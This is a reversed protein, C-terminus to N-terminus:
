NSDAVVRETSSSPDEMKFAKFIDRRHLGLEKLVEDLNIAIAELLADIEEFKHNRTVTMRLGTNNYPVSPFVAINTYFGQQLMRKCLAYGTEPQGMGIFFIPTECRKILPLSLENAKQTFYAINAELQAQMEYIEESLHIEASAIGAGLNAPQLPGSFMLTGGCNRVLEKADENPFVMAGGGSAFAKNLSTILYAKPHLPGNKLVWGAGKPGTWSMSHADDIYLYFNNYYDLLEYLEKVPAFDGFMSYTGDAMYWIKAYKNKLHEIRRSIFQINNHRVLEVHTGSAKAIRAANQVSAHVQHDLLIADKPGVLVPINSLHGLSTTPSVITPYGFLQELKQELIDYLGLSLYARSCSFQSGFQQIAKISAAKLRPDSELSLYSCSGFNLVPRGEIHIEMDDPMSQEAVLQVIGLKKAEVINRNILEISPTTAGM